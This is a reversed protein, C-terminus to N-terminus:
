PQWAFTLMSCSHRGSDARLAAADQGRVQGSAHLTSTRILLGGQDNVQFVRLFPRAQTLQQWITAAEQHFEIRNSAMGRLAADISTVRQVYM